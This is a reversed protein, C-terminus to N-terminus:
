CGRRYHSECDPRGDAAQSRTATRRPERVCVAMGKKFGDSRDAPDSCLGQESGSVHNENGRLLRELHVTPVSYLWGTDSKKPTDRYPDLEKPRM